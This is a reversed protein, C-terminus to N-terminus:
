DASTWVADVDDHDELLEVLAGVKAAVEESVIEKEKAFKILEASEIRFGLGELSKLVEAFAEKETIIELVSMQERDETETSDEKIDEVGSIEIIELELEDKNGLVVQDAQGYKESKKIKGPQITILGKEVFQWSVSGASAFKGGGNEILSRVEAVTRNSNDTQCDILMPIGAPGFAEYSIKQIMVSNDNGQAKEVAREINSMPMNASKAKNVALRLAFNLDPDAGGEKAALTINKALKTFLAGKKQDNAGKKHKIKAWKSHGSM